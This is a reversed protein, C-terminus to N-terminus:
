GEQAARAIVRRAFALFLEHVNRARASDIVGDGFVARAEPIELFSKQYIVEGYYSDMSDSVPDPSALVVSRLTVSHHRELGEVFRNVHIPHVSKMRILASTVVDRLSQMKGHSHVEAEYDVFREVLTQYTKLAPFPYRAGIDGLADACYAVMEHNGRWREDTLLEAVLDVQTAGQRRITYEGLNTLASNTYRCEFGTALRSAWYARRGGGEGSEDLYKASVGDIAVDHRFTIWGGYDGIFRRGVRGYVAAAEAGAADSFDALIWLATAAVYRAVHNGQAYLDELTRLIGQQQEPRHGHSALLSYMYWAILGNETSCLRVLDPEKVLHKEPHRFLDGIRATTRQLEPALSLHMEIFNCPLPGKQWYVKALKDAITGALPRKLVRLLPRSMVHRLLGVGNALIRQRLSPDSFRSGLLHLSMTVLSDVRARFLDRTASSALRLVATGSLRDRLDWVLEDLLDLVLDQTDTVAGDGTPSRQALAFAV